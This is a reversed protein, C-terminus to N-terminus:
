SFITTRRNPFGNNDDRDQDYSVVADEDDNTQIAESRPNPSVKNPVVAPRQNPNDKVKNERNEAPCSLVMSAADCLSHLMSIQHQQEPRGMAQIQYFTLPYIWQYYPRRGEPLMNINHVKELYGAAVFVNAIDYLRRIKTKLGRAALRQLVEPDQPLSVKAPKDAKRKTSGGLGLAALEEVTTVTGHIKDSADALSVIPNGALFIQLFQKSLICLSKCTRKVGRRYNDDIGCDAKKGPNGRVDDDDEEDDEIENEDEDAMKDSTMINECDKHEIKTASQEQDVTKSPPLLQAALADTPYLLLAQRQLLAFYEPLHDLSMWYYTNKGKKVVVRLAELINVVDYIRRREVGLEQALSDIIVLSGCPLTRYKQLFTEALVGLSKKKRSYPASSSSELSCSLSTKPRKNQPPCPAAQAATYFNVHHINPGHSNPLFSPPAFLPPGPIGTHRGPPLPIPLPTQPVFMPGFDGAANLNLSGVTGPAAQGRSTTATPWWQITNVPPPAAPPFRPLFNITPAPLTSSSIELIEDSKLVDKTVSKQAPEAASTDGEQQRGNNSPSAPSSPVPPESCNSKPQESSILSETRSPSLGVPPSMPEQHNPNSSCFSIARKSESLAINSGQKSISSLTMAALSRPSFITSEKTEKEGDRADVEESANKDNETRETDSFVRKVGQGDSESM